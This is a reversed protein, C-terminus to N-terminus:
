LHASEYFRDGQAWEMDCRSPKRQPAPRPLLTTESSVTRDTRRILEGEITMPAPPEHRAVHVAINLIVLNVVPKAATNGATGIKNASSSGVLYRPPFGDAKTAHAIRETATRATAAANAEFALRALRPDYTWDCFSEAM